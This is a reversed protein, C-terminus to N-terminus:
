AVAERNLAALAAVAAAVVVAIESFTDFGRYVVLVATVVNDIGRDAADALYFETVPGFAPADPSGVAPLAPVTLLLGVTVLAAVAVSRPIATRDVGPAFAAETASRAMPKASDSNRCIWVTEFLVLAPTSSVASWRLPQSM